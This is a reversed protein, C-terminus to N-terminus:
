TGLLPGGVAALHALSTRVDDYPGQREGPDAALAQDQEIVWAVDTPLAPLIREFDLDGAGLPLFVRRAIADDFAVEHAVMAAGLAVDCDKLHVHAVRDGAAAAFDVPDMGGSAVHATDLCVGVDGLELIRDMDASTEVLSGVHPHVAQRLGAAAAMEEIRRLGEAVPAWAADDLVEGAALGGRKPVTMLVTAGIAALRAIADAVSALAAEVDVDGHLTFSVPGAVPALGHRDLIARAEDPDAPLFGPVGVETATFGLEAIEGLIRDPSLDVGWRGGGVYGWTIPTATLLPSM